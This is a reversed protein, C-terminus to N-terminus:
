QHYTKCVECTLHDGHSCSSYEDCGKVTTTSRFMGAKLTLHLMINLDVTVTPISNIVKIYYKM